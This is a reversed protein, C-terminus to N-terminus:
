RRQAPSARTADPTCSTRGDRAFVAPANEVHGGGNGDSTWESLDGGEFTGRWLMSAGGDGIAGLSVHQDCAAALAACGALM